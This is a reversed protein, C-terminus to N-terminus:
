RSKLYNITPSEHQAVHYVALADAIAENKYLQKGWPVEYLEDIAQITDEKTASKKGLLFKKADQESYYEIPIDLCDSMTQLMGSVVGLMKMASASQSGHPMETVIYDVKFTTITTILNTNIESIRRSLDDSKRIRKKQHEPATRICGATKIVEQNNQSQSIVAYGWGTISPDNTLIIM